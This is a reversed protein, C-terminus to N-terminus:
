NGPPVSGPNLGTPNPQHPAPTGIGPNTDQTRIVPTGTNSGPTVPAGPHANVDQVQQPAGVAGSAATGDDALRFIGQHEGNFNAVDALAKTEGQETIVLDQGGQNGLYYAYQNNPGAVVDGPKIDGSPVPTGIDQGPPPMRYGAASANERFSKHNAGDTGAMLHALQAAKPTDFTWDRGRINTTNAAGPPGGPTGPAGPPPAVVKNGTPTVTTHEAGHSIAPTAGSHNAEDVHKKDQADRDTKDKMRDDLAKKLQDDTMPPKAMPADPAKPIANALGGPLGGLSPMQPMGMGPTQPIGSRLLSSLDKVPDSKDTPAAPAVPMVPGAPGGPAPAAPPASVPPVTHQEDKGSNPLGTANSLNDAVTFTDAASALTQATRDMTQVANKMEATSDSMKSANVHNATFPILGTTSNNIEQRNMLNVQRFAQYFNNGNTAGDMLQKGMAPLVTQHLQGLAEAAPKAKAWLGAVYPDDSGAKYASEISDIVTQLKGRLVNIKIAVASFDSTTEIAPSMTPWVDDPHYDFAATNTRVMGQDMKVITDDRNGDHTLPLFSTRPPSPPANLDPAAGPGFITSILNNVARREGADIVWFLTTLAIGLGPLSMAGLRLATQAAVRTGLQAGRKAALMGAEAAARTTGKSAVDKALQDSAAHVAAKATASTKAAAAAPEAAGAAAQRTAARDLVNRIDQPHNAGGGGATTPQKLDATPRDMPSGATGNLSTQPTTQPPASQPPGSPATAGGAAGPNPQAAVPNGAFRNLHANISDRGVVHQFAYAAGFAGAPDMGARMVDDLVTAHGGAVGPMQAFDPASIAGNSGGGPPSAGM